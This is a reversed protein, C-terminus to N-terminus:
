PTFTQSEVSDNIIEEFQAKIVPCELLHDAEERSIPQNSIILQLYAERDLCANIAEQLGPLVKDKMEPAIYFDNRSEQSSWLQYEYEKRSKEIEDMLKAIQNIQETTLKM